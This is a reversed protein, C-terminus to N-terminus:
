LETSHPSIYRFLYNYNISHFYFVIFSFSSLEHFKLSPLLYVLFIFVSVPLGPSITQFFFRITFKLSFSSVDSLTLIVNDNNISKKIRGRPHQFAHISFNEAFYYVNFSDFKCDVDTVLYLIGSYQHTIITLLLISSSSEVSFNIDCSWYVFLCIFSFSATNTVLQM